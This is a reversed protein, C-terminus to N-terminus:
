RAGMARTIFQVLFSAVVGAVTCITALLVKQGAREVDGVRQREEIAHLRQEGRGNVYDKLDRHSGKLEGLAERYASIERRLEDIAALIRDEGPPM